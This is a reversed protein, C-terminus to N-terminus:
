CLYLFFLTYNEYHPVFDCYDVQSSKILSEKCMVHTSKKKPSVVRCYAEFSHQEMSVTIKMM